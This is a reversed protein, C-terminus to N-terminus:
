QVTLEVRRNLARNEPTSNDVKPSSSGKGESKINSEPIGLKVLQTKITNCRELSLMKNIAEDGVNDTHGTLQIMKNTSNQAIQSLFSDLLKSKIEKTSNTPFYIETIGNSSVIQVEKSSTNVIVSPSVISAVAISDIFTQDLKQSVLAIKSTDLGFGILLSRLKYARALGLNDFDTTNVEDSFYQGVIDLRTSNSLFCISDRYKEFDVLLPSDTNKYFKIPDNTLLVENNVERRDENCFGKINCTYYKWCLLCWILFVILYIISKLNM